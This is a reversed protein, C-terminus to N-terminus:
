CGVEESWWVVASLWEVGESWRMVAILSGSWGLVASFWEM